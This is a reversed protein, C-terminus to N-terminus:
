KIQNNFQNFSQNIPDFKVEDIPFDGYWIYDFQLTLKSFDNRLEPKDIEMLYNYNTKNPQWNIIEADSLKKLARLYLLRVALRFKREAVLRQLEQEYDIEHINETIVDYPLFTEKSKKRFINETGISKIVIYLVLAIGLGIFIYRSILNSAAGQILSGILRWFLMWFKDWWSLQQRGVEDYQFEKQEKYISISDKDFKSPTIKISDIRVEKVVPKPKVTQANSIVPIFFLLSVFLYRVFVRQM